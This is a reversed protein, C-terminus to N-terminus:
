QRRHHVTSLSLHLILVARSFTTKGRLRLCRLRAKQKTSSTSSSTFAMRSTLACCPFRVIKVPPRTFPGPWSSKAHSATQAVLACYDRALTSSLIPVRPPRQRLPANMPALTSLLLLVRPPRQWSPASMAPSRQYYYCCALRDNGRPRLCRPRANIITLARSATKAVFACDDCTLKSLLLLVHRPRQWSPASMAPSHQYYDGTTRAFSVASVLLVSRPTPRCRYGLLAITVTFSPNSEPEITL